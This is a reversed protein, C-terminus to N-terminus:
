FRNWACSTECWSRRPQSCRIISAGLYHRSVLVIPADLTEFFDVMLDTDNLPVLLGGAGEIILPRKTDPPVMEAIVIRVGQNLAAAHALPVRTAPLV